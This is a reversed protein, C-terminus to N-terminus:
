TQGPRVAATTDPVVDRHYSDEDDDARYLSTVIMRDPVAPDVTVVARLQGQRIVFVDVDRRKVLRITGPLAAFMLVSLDQKEKPDTAMDRVREMVSDILLATL